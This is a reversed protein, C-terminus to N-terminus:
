ADLSTLQANPFDKSWIDETPMVPVTDTVYEQKLNGKTKLYSFRYKVVEPNLARRSGRTTIMPGLKEVIAPDKSQWIPSIKKVKKWNIRRGEGDESAVDLFFQDDNLFDTVAVSDAVWNVFARYQKNTVETEDIFFASLSINKGVNGSDLSGKFLITGSPVYVMGPPPPLKGGRFASVKPAKYLNESSNCGVFSILIAMCIAYGNAAQAIHHIEVEKYDVPLRAGAQRPALSAMRRAIDKVPASLRRALSRVLLIALMLSIVAIVAGLVAGQNQQTELETIDLALVVRETDNPHVLAVYTRGQWEIQRSQFGLPLDRFPPPVSEEGQRAPVYWGRLPGVQPLKRTKLPKDADLDALTSE